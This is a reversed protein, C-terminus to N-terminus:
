NKIIRLIVYTYMLCGMCINGLSELLAFALLIGLVMTGALPSFLYLLTGTLSFLFGVRAAFIKPAKDILKRNSIFHEVLRKAFWSLPSSTHHTFARIFYDIIVLGLFYPQPLIISLFILVAISLGTIRVTNEEVKEASIPCFLSKM